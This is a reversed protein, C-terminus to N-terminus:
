APPFKMIEVRHGAPTHVFARPSGWHPTRPDVDYDAVTLRAVAAEYDEVVMAVHGSDPVVPDDTLLLHVQQDGLALWVARHELAEPPEVRSFGLLAFFAVCAESEEFSTELAIHHLM